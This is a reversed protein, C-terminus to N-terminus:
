SSKLTHDQLLVVGVLCDTITLPELESSGRSAPVIRAWGTAEAERQLKPPSTCTPKRLQLGLGFMLTM